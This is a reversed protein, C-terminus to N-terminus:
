FCLQELNLSRFVFLTAIVIMELPFCYVNLINKCTRRKIFRSMKPIYSDRYGKHVAVIYLLNTIYCHLVDSDFMTFFKAHMRQFVQM